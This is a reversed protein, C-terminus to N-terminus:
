RARRTRPMAEVADWNPASVRVLSPRRTVVASPRPPAPTERHAPPSGATERRANSARPASSVRAALPAVPAPPLRTTRRIPITPGESQPDDDGLDFRESILPMRPPAPLRPSVARSKQTPMMQSEYAPLPAHPPETAYARRAAPPASTHAVRMVGNSPTYPTTMEEDDPVPLSAMFSDLIDDPLNPPASERGDRRAERSDREPAAHVGSDGREEFRVLPGTRVLAIRGNAEIRAFLLPAGNKPLEILGGKAGLAISAVYQAGICREAHPPLPGSVHHGNAARDRRGSTAVVWRCIGNKDLMFTCADTYAAFAIDPPLEM